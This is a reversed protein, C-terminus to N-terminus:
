MKLSKWDDFIAARGHAAHLSSSLGLKELLWARM